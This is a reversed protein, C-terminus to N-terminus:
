RAASGAAVSRTVSVSGSISVIRPAPSGALADALVHHAFMALSCWARAHSAGPHRARSIRSRCVGPRTV